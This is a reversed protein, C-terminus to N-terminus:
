FEEEKQGLLPRFDIGAEPLLVKLAWHNSMPSSLMGDHVPFCIKPKVELVYNMFDRVRTWPGAVPLALIEVPKSPNYLSDGPCFLRSGIFYGTNQVQGLERFIEEHKCDHAEIEIGMFSKSTKDPLVEHRIGAADLLKGVGDNTVIFARPNNILIKKLSDIHLHDGHEHTILILDIGIEKIQEDITYSGPDTMIKKDNTEIVLCCHGLKKIKM